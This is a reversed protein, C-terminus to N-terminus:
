SCSLCDDLSYYNKIIVNDNESRYEEFEDYIEKLIKDIFVDSTISCFSKEEEDCEKNLRFDFNAEVTEDQIKDVDYKGNETIGICDDCVSLNGCLYKSYEMIKGCFVSKSRVINNVRISLEEFQKEDKEHKEHKCEKKIDELKKMCMDKDWRPRKYTAITIGLIIDNNDSCCPSIRRFKFQKYINMVPDSNLMGILNEAICNGVDTEIENNAQNFYKLLFEKPIIIGRVIEVQTYVM